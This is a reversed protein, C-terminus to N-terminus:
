GILVKEEPYHYGPESTGIALMAAGVTIPGVRGAFMTLIILFKGLSSFLASISTVMGPKAMSLGVTGFASTTEFIIHLLPEDELYVLLLSVTIVLLFAAAAVNFAKMITDGSLRRRSLTVETRGRIHAVVTAFLVGFTTTKIGGGTGGPSAGIFMLVILILQAEETMAGIDITNFGATRPTVAQFYSALLRTSFGMPQLTRPNEFEFLFLITTGLVILAATVLLAMRTHLSVPRGRSKNRRREYLESIVLFGIGGIIINTTIVLVIVPDGAYQMLNDSFLAFGANNFSSVAHFLGLFFAKELHFDMMWRLTLMVTAFGEVIATVIIIRKLFRVIGELTFVNLAEQLVLLDRLSIRQRIVLTITSALTMYGLGGAQILLMIVVQGFFSFHVPTNLVILGTVCVASTSTYLADIFPTGKGSNTSVPLMLLFAGLLIISAFGLFLVRAPTVRFEASRGKVPV